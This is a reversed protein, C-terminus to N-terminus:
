KIEEAGSTTITYRKNKSGLPRGRKRKIIEETKQESEM